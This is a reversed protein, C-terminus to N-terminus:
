SNNSKWEKYKSKQITNLVKAISSAWYNRFGFGGAKGTLRETLLVKKSAIDFFTVYISAEQATKNMGEMIFLLGVGKHNGYSYGKIVGDVTAKSFRSADASNSSLIKETNVKGSKELVANIDTAVSSKQFAKSLDYKKPENVVVQNISSFYNRVAMADAGADGILRAESFDVGFYTIPTESSNFIDKVKQATVSGANLFLVFLSLFWALKPIQKM